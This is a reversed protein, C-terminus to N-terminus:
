ALRALGAAIEGPHLVLPGGPAPAPGAERACVVLARVELGSARLAAVFRRRPEDWDLLVVIASTLRRRHARVRDALATFAEPPSPAVGALAELLHEPRSQGRGGTHCHVERGVFLLDLLCEQTDIARVFSAAVAVAEEFAPDEGRDTSTDLVLAHREFFEDQYERVIPRGTRAFSKWHVRQLPDGPRYDRLGVFEASDGVSSALTVAGQQFRRAGPLALRPLRYRRPLVTVHAPAEARSLGRVLGLPDSRALTVGALELRGRRRPELTLKVTGVEGPDVPPLPVERLPGPLRRDILWRWRYYGVRRDFANRKAEGPEPTARWREFSPRPDRLREVATLGALRRAGTNEVSLPYDLREGVTAYRPLTRRVVVRPPFRSSAAFALVLLAALLTFAQFSMAQQTDLGVVAAAAAAGLVLWGPGTLRERLARHAASMLRLARYVLRSM